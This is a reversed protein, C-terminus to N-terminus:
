EINVGIRQGIEETNSYQNFYEFIYNVCIWINENRSDIDYENIKDEIKRKSIYGELSLM